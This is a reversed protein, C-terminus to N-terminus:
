QVSNREIKGHIFYCKGPSYALWAARRLPSIGPVTAADPKKERGCRHLAM